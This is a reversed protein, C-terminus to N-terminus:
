KWGFILIMLQYQYDFKTLRWGCILKVHLSTRLLCALSHVTHYQMAAAVLQRAGERLQAVVVVWVLVPLVPLVPLM